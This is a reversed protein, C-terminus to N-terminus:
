VINCLVANRHRVTPYVEYWIGYSGTRHTLFKFLPPPSMFRIIIRQTYKPCKKLFFLIVKHKWILLFYFLYKKHKKGYV